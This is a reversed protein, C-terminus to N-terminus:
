HHYCLFDQAPYVVVDDSVFTVAGDLICTTGTFCSVVNGAMFKVQFLNELPLALVQNPLLLLV